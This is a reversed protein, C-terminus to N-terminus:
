AWTAGSWYMQLPTAAKDKPLQATSAVGGPNATMAKTITEYITNTEGDVMTVGTTAVTDCNVALTLTKPNTANPTGIASEKFSIVATKANGIAAAGTAAVKAIDDINVLVDYAPSIPQGAATNVVRFKIFKAM